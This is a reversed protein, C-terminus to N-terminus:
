AQSKKDQLAKLVTVLGRLNGAMVNVLGSIPAQLSGVVKALLETKGPLLALEAVASAAIFKQELLGGFLQVSEHQKRFEAVVKAPMVEDDAAALAVAGTLAGIADDEFGKNKLALLLLNRKAVTINGGAGAGASERLKKRLGELETVKLGAYSFFTVGKRDLDKEIQELLITKQQKNKAM